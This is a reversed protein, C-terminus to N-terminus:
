AAGSKRHRKWNDLDIGADRMTRDGGAAKYANWLKAYEDSGADAACLLMRDHAIQLHNKLCKHPDATAIIERDSLTTM